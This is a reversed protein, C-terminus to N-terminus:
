KTRDDINMKLLILGLLVIEFQSTFLAIVIMVTCLVIATDYLIKLITKNM